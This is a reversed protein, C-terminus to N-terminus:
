GCWVVRVTTGDCSLTVGSFRDASLAVYKDLEGLLTWAVTTKAHRALVLAAVAAAVCVCLGVVVHAYDCVYAHVRLRVCVCACVCAVFVCVFVLLFVFRRLFVRACLGEGGACVPCLCVFVFGRLCVFVCLIM